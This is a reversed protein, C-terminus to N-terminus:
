GSKKGKGEKILRQLQPLRLNVREIDTRNEVPDALTLYHRYSSAAEAYETLQDHVVGLFYYAGASTPRAATLWIFEVKAEPYRKLQFLASALNARATANDPAIRIIKRLLGIASEYQGAQVLAAGFGVAHDINGPESESARRCYDLAKAPNERRYLMCLRGLIAPDRDNAALQKELDEPKASRAITIKQRLKDAAASRSRLCDLQALAETFKGDYALVSAKLIIHPAYPERDSDLRAVIERARDIDGNALSLDGLQVLALRNAPDIELAKALSAKAMEHQGLASELAAGATHVSATKETLAHIRALLGKLIDPSSATRLRLDVLATLALRNQPDMEVAKQLAASAEDFRDLEVLVSGLSALAATWGARLELARRFAAEASRADNMALYASGRQYEAEPFEPHIRIAKEYLEVAQKLDGKEHVDQARDFILVAEALTDSEQALLAYHGALLLVAAAASLWPRRPLAFINFNSRYMKM